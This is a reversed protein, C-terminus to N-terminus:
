RGPAQRPKQHPCFYGLCILARWRVESGSLSEVLCNQLQWTESDQTCPPFLHHHINTASLIPNQQQKVMLVSPVSPIPQYLVLLPAM